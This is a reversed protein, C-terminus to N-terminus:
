KIFKVMLDSFINVLLIFYYIISSDPIVIDESVFIGNAILQVLIDRKILEFVDYNEVVQYNVPYLTIFVYDANYKKQFQNLFYSKGDGFPASFIVRDNKKLHNDFAQLEKDIPINM